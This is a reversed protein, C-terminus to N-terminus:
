ALGRLKLFATRPDIISLAEVTELDLLAKDGTILLDAEAEIAAAIIPWDDPDPFGSPMTAVGDPVGTIRQFVTEAAQWQDDNAHFKHRLLRRTEMIIAPCVLVEMRGADHTSMAADILDACLGRAIFSAIWVNTDFFIKM